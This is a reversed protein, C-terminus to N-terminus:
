QEIKGRQRRRGEVLPAILARGASELEPVRVVRCVAWFVATGVPISVALDTLRGLRSVGLWDAFGITSAKIAVGMILSALAIKLTSKM